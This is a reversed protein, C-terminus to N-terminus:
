PFSPQWSRRLACAAWGGKWEKKRESHVQKEAYKLYFSVIQLRRCFWAHPHASYRHHSSSRASALPGVLALVISTLFFVGVYVFILFFAFSAQNHQYAPLV